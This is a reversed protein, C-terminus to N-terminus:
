SLFPNELIQHRYGRIFDESSVTQKGELQLTDIAIDQNLTGVVLTTDIIKLEGPQAHTSMLPMIKKFKLVKGNWIAWIGPWVIFARYKNYIGVADDKSWDIKGDDKKIISCYRSLSEDQPTLQLTDELYRPVTEHLLKAAIRSLTESLTVYTDNEHIPASVSTIIDGTDMKPAIKQLTVGTTNYGRLLATQIPSAGRLDPLLSGHINICGKRPHNLFWEPLM